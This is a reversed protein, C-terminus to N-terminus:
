IKNQELIIKEIDPDAPIIERHNITLGGKVNLLRYLETNGLISIEDREKQNQCKALLKEYKEFTKKVEPLCGQSYALSFIKEKAEQENLYIVRM